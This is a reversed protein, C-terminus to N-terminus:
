APPMPVPRAPQDRHIVSLAYRLPSAGQNRYAHPRDAVFAIADGACVLHPDGDLELTLKGEIVLLLERTGSPHGESAYGDGALMRVDWLEVQQSTGSGVLLRAVSGAQEGTWLTVAEEARVVRASPVEPAEVLSAISVGFATALRCITAVSPNTRAQEVQSLMGKSVGSRAALDDLTWALRTRHARVNRGVAANVDEPEPVENAGAQLLLSISLNLITSYVPTYKLNV